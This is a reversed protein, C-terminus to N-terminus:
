GLMWSFYLIPMKPGPACRMIASEGASLNFEVKQSELRAIRAVVSHRGLSIEVENEVDFALVRHDSGDIIVELVDAPWFLNRNWWVRRKATILIMSKQKEVNSVNM